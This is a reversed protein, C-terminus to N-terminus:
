SRNVYSPTCFGLEQFVNYNAIHKIVYVRDDVGNRNKALFLLLNRDDPNLSFMEHVGHGSDDKIYNGNADKMLNFPKLDYKEESYEDNWVKRILMVTSAVEVVQKSNSLVNPTLYRQNTMYQAVQMTITVHIDLKDAMNFFMKSLEVLEGAYNNASADEAKFTDYFFHQVGERALKKIVKQTKITSYSYMKVFKLYPAYNLNIYEKAKNIMSLEEDTYKGARIKERTLKYYKFERFMVSTIMIDRFENINQENSILCVKVGQQIIPLIFGGFIISSKGIGSAAAIINVSKTSLGKIDANLRPLVKAFSVGIGEGKNRLSIYDDTISFDEIEVDNEVNIFVENLQHEYYNYLDFTSMELFKKDSTNFGINKLKKLINNKLLDDKYKPFNNINVINKLESITSFGGYKDYLERTSPKNTLYNEVSVEDIQKYNQKRMNSLMSFYLKGEETEFYDVTIETDLDDFLELDTYLSFIFNSEIIKVDM